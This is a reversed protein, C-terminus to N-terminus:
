IVSSGLQKLKKVKESTTKIKIFEAIKHRKEYLNIVSSFFILGFALILGLAYLKQISNLKLKIM